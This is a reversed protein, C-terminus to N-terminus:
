LHLLATARNIFLKFWLKPDSATTPTLGSDALRLLEPEPCDAPSALAAASVVIRIDDLYNMLIGDVYGFVRSIRASAILTMTVHDNIAM